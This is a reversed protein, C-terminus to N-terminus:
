RDLDDKNNVERNDLNQSTAMEEADDLLDDLSPFLTEQRDAICSEISDHVGLGNVLEGTFDEIGNTETDSGYFTSGGELENGQKDYITYSFKQNYYEAGIIRAYANLATEKQEPTVEDISDVGFYDKLNDDTMYIVATYLNGPEIVKYTLADSIDIDAGFVCEFDLNGRDDIFEREAIERIIDEKDWDTPFTYEMGTKSDFATIGTKSYEDQALDPDRTLTYSEEVFDFVKVAIKDLTETDLKKSLDEWANTETLGSGFTCHEYPNNAEGNYKEIEVIEDNKNLFYEKQFVLIM